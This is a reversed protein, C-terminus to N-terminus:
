RKKTVGKGASVIVNTPSVAASVASAKSIAAKISTVVNTVTSVRAKGNTPLVSNVRTYRTFDSASQRLVPM